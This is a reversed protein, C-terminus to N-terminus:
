KNFEITEVLADFDKMFTNSDTRIMLTKDRIKFIVAAGRIDKSFNGELRTGTYEGIAVGRSKLDGRTVLSQYQKIVAEYDQNVITVRLAFQRQSTIQPVVVPNLYAEYNGGTSAERAEYVSWTKPYMFTVRGYDSPGVFQRNPEKEREIFKAEDADAQEKRAKTTALDIKGDVDTKQEQYQLYAWIAFSGAGALLITLVIVIITSAHIQGRQRVSPAIM